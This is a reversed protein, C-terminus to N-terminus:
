APPTELANEIALARRYGAAMAARTFTSARRLAADAAQQHTQPDHVLRRIAHALAPLDNPPVLTGEVGTTVLEPLAGAAFAVVPLGAAMAEIVALGFGEILCFHVFVHGSELDRRPDQRHGIFRVQSGLDHAEADAQLEALPGDGIWVAEVALGTGILLAVLPRLLHPQKADYARGCAVLRVTGSPFPVARAAPSQRANGNPIVAVRPPLAQFFSRARGALYESISVLVCSRAVAQRWLRNRIGTFRTGTAEYYPDGHLAIVHRRGTLLCAAAVAIDCGRHLSLVASWRGSRMTQLLQHMGSPSTQGAWTLHNVGAALANPLLDLGDVPAALLTVLDGAEALGRALDIITVPVGGTDRDTVILWDVRWCELQARGPEM